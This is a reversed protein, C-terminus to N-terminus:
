STGSSSSCYRGPRPGGPVRFNTQVMSRLRREAEAHTLGARVSHLRDLCEEVPLAHWAITSESLLSM